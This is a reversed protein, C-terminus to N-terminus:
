FLLSVNLGVNRAYPYSTGRETKVSSIYFLDSANVSFRVNEIGMQKLYDATWRYQISASQLSFVNDSMVFRSTMRTQENSLGKFYVVDGDKLWRDSFVRNDVNSNKITTTTVEVKNLLTSNYQKGGWHYGFSLNLSLDKYSFSLGANGKYTPEAVGMYVKDSPKWDYTPNGNKDLFIEKGSSPDIGLSRVAYISNQSRGEYYLTNIDADAELMKATQRKLDDSLKVIENKNYALKGSVMLTIDRETDRVLYGSLSAEFGTNKVKGINEMYSSFGTALPLDMSSLLNNTTKTYLDLSGKIRNKLITFELGANYQSTVQWKLDENGLGMLYAGGWYGYRDNDYYKFMPLAQYASFKQSGTEGYSLRLRLVNLFDNGKLFKEQHLNWGIGASWFTGFRKNSGFQSSGDTRLSFDAYYRNDYVYNVNGVLGVRRTTSESASPM